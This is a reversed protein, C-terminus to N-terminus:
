GSSSDDDEEVLVVVYRRSTAEPFAPEEDGTEETVHVSHSDARDSVMRATGDLANIAVVHHRHRQLM